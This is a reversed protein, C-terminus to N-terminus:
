QKTTGAVAAAVGLAVYTGGAVYRQTRAFRRNRQLWDGATGALLAYAGDTVVALAVFLMGLAVIQVWARGAAPDVFQPLFAFFFLATKPNLVNVLIGQRFIRKLSPKGGAQGGEGSARGWLTRVGLYVLYAAGAYQLTRFAVASSLLVASVGLCAAVVHFLTGVGIGLTSVLGATRGQEVSRAVIYFVAPGPMVLLVLASIVFLALASSEMM